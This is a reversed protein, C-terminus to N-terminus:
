SQSFVNAGVLSEGPYCGSSDLPRAAHGWSLVLNRRGADRVCDGSFDMHGALREAVPEGWVVARVCDRAYGFGGADVRRRYFLGAWSGVRSRGMFAMFAWLLVYRTNPQVPTLGVSLAMALIYGFVPDLDQRTSRPSGGEPDRDWAWDDPAKPIAQPPYGARLRHRDRPMMPRRPETTEEGPPEEPDDVTM